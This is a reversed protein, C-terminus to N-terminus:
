LGREEWVCRVESARYVCGDARTSLDDSPSVSSASLVARCADGTPAPDDREYASRFAGDEVLVDRTWTQGLWTGALGEVGFPSASAPLGDVHTDKTARQSVCAINEVSAVGECSYVDGVPGVPQWRCWPWRCESPAAARAALVLQAYTAVRGGRWACYADAASATVTASALGPRNSCLGCAPSNSPTELGDAPCVEADVCDLYADRSVAYRDISFTSVRASFFAAGRRAQLQVRSGPICVQADLGEHDLTRECADICESAVGWACSELCVREVFEGPYDCAEFDRRTAGPM